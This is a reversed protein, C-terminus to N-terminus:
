TRFPSQWVRESFFFGIMLIGSSGDENIVCRADDMVGM